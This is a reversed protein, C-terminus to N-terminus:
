ISMMFFIVTSNTWNELKQTVLIWWNVEISSQIRRRIFIWELVPDIKYLKRGPHCCLVSVQCKTKDSNSDYLSSPSKVSKNSCKFWRRPISYNNCNKSWKSNRLRWVRKSWIKFKVGKFFLHSRHQSKWQIRFCKSCKYQRNIFSTNLKM